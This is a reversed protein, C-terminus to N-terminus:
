PRRHPADMLAGVLYISGTVLVARADSAGAAAWKSAEALARAPEPECSAADFGLQRALSHLAAPSLARPSRPATFWARECCPLLAALMGAADKDELVGMVLGLRREGVVGPLSRVLAAVADPNHAGDLVVLPDRTLVQMRGPVETDRAAARVAREDLEIQAGELWTQAALRALAFNSHQFAGAARLELGTSSDDPSERAARLHLGAPPDAAQGAPPDAAQRTRRHAWPSSARGRSPPSATPM